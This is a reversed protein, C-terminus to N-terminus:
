SGPPYIRQGPGCCALGGSNVLSSRCRHASGETDRRENHSQTRASPWRGGYHGGQTKSRPRSNRNYAGFTITSPCNPTTPPIQESPLQRSAVVRNGMGHCSILPTQACFGTAPEPPQNSWEFWGFTMIGIEFYRGCFGSTHGLLPLKFLILVSWRLQSQNSMLSHNGMGGSSRRPSVAASLDILDKRWSHFFDADILFPQNLSSGSPAPLCRTGAGSSSPYDSGSGPRSRTISHFSYFIPLIPPLCLCDLGNTNVVSDKVKIYKLINECSWCLKEDLDPSRHEHFRMRSTQTTLDPPPRTSLLVRAVEPHIGCRDSTPPSNLYSRVNPRYSSRRSLRLIHPNYCFNMINAAWTSAPLPHCPTIKGRYVERDLPACANEAAVMITCTVRTRLSPATMIIRANTIVGTHRNPVRLCLRGTHIQLPLGPTQGFYRRGWKWSNNTSTFAPIRLSSSLFRLPYECVLPTAPVFTLGRTISLRAALRLKDKNTGVEDELWM